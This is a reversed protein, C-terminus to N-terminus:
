KPMERQQVRRDDARDRRRRARHEFTLADTQRLLEPRRASGGWVLELWSRLKCELLTAGQLLQAISIQVAMASASTSQMASHTGNKMM